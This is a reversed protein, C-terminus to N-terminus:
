GESEFLMELVFFDIAAAKFFELAAMPLKRVGMDFERDMLEEIYKKAEEEAGDRICFFSQGDKEELVLAGFEDKKAYKEKYEEYEKSFEKQKKSVEKQLRFLRYSYQGPFPERLARSLVKVMEADMIHKYKLKITEV